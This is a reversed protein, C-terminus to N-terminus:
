LGAKEKVAKGLERASVNEGNRARQVTIEIRKGEFNKIENDYRKRDSLKLRGDSVTGYYTLKPQTM